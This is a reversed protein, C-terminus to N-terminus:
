HGGPRDTSLGQFDTVTDAGHFIMAQTDTYVNLRQKHYLSVQSRLDPSRSQAAGHKGSRVSEHTNENMLRVSLVRHIPIGAKM